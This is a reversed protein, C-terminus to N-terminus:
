QTAWKEKRLQAFARRIPIGQEGSAKFEQLRIESIVGDSIDELAEFLEKQEDVSLNGIQNMVMEVNKTM